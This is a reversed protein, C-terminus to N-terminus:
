SATTIQRITRALSASMKPIDPIQNHGTAIVVNRAAWRGRDTTVRWGDGFRDVHRVTTEQEVPADFSKAYASLFAIVEDRSMFGDPKEGSYSFGPLRTMWNPTLLRLSQWRGAWAQAVRGRELVVHDMARETLCRSLALGAQGAGIIVTNTANM